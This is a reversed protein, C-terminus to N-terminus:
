GSKEEGIAHNRIDAQRGTLHLIHSAGVIEVILKILGAILLFTVVVAGVSLLVFNLDSIQKQNIFDPDDLRSRLNVVFDQRPSVPKFTSELFSEIRPLGTEKPQGMKERDKKIM